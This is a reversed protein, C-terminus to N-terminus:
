GGAKGGSTSSLLGSEFSFMLKSREESTTLAIQLLSDMLD